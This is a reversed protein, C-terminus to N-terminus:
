VEYGQAIMVSTSKYIMRGSVRDKCKKVFGMEAMHSLIRSIKQTTLNNLVIDQQKIQDITLAEPSNELVDICRTTFESNQTTTYKSTKYPM